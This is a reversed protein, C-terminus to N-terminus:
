MTSFQYLMSHKYQTGPNVIVSPFNPHNVADPYGQTELCLGAHPGYVVGDKGKVDKLMNGTYFQVGPKDSSLKMMRGSKPDHVEAVVKMKGDEAGDVCYNIDYGKPLKGIRSGVTKPELFDFPTNKVPDLKGTPILEEDTPTIHSAFLQVHHSLIDGSDHGGLNWYSHQALNVPTPKNLAKAKMLVTLKQNAFITYTVHVDLDGPFGQEGDKSKYVFTIYSSSKDNVYKSVTWVLDSFGKKGGHLLNKGENNVLKYTTGNLTFKAGGIRNAVRGVLAGFYVKDKKYPKVDDYGLVVDALKGQNDPLIVSIITAGWNTLKVSFNGQKLEYIKIKPKSNNSNKADCVNVILLTSIFILCLFLSITKAM